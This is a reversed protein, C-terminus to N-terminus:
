ETRNSCIQLGHNERLDAEKGISWIGDVRM